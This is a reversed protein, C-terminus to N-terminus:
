NTRVTFSIRSSSLPHSVELTEGEALLLPPSPPLSMGEQADVKQVIFEGASQYSFVHTGRDYQGLFFTTKLSPSINGIVTEIEDLSLFGRERLLTTVIGHLTGMAVETAYPSFLLPPSIGIVRMSHPNLVFADWLLFREQPSAILKFGEPFLPALSKQYAALPTSFTHYLSLAQAIVSGLDNFDVPKTVFDFAGKNMATRFTKIDSYASVVISRISSNVNKLKDLLTFGDMGPMNVDLVVVAIRSDNQVLELADQGNQAFLLEFTGTAIEKRFKQQALFEFDAEDDVLLIKEM